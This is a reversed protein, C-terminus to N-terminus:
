NPTEAPMGMPEGLPHGQLLGEPVKKPVGWPCPYQFGREHNSGLVVMKVSGMESDRGRGLERTQHHAHVLLVTHRAFTPSPKHVPFRFNGLPLSMAM